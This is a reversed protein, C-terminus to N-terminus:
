LLSARSLLHVPRVEAIIFRVNKVAIAKMFILACSMAPFTALKYSDSADCRNAGGVQWVARIARALAEEDNGM